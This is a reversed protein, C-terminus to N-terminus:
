REDAKTAHDFIQEIARPTIGKDNDDDISPGMMTFTKGSGTQGYALLCGNYGELVDAPLLVTACVWLKYSATVWSEALFQLSLGGPGALAIHTGFRPCNTAGRGHVGGETILQHWVCPRVSVVGVCPSLSPSAFAVGSLPTM